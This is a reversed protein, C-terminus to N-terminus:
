PLDLIGGDYEDYAVTPIPIQTRTHKRNSELKSIDTKTPATELGRTDIGCAVQRMTSQRVKNDLMDRGPSREWLSFGELFLLVGM